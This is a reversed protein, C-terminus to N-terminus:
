RRGKGRKADLLTVEYRSLTDDEGEDTFIDVEGSSGLLDDTGGTIAVTIFPGGEDAEAEAETFTTVGSWSLEGQGTLALVGSCMLSLTFPSLEQEPDPEGEPFEGAAETVTCTIHNRGVEESRDEDAYVTDTVIFRDGVDPAFEEADGEVVEGERTIATSVDESAYLTLDTGGGGRKGKEDDDPGAAAPTLVALTLLAALLAVISKRMHRRRRGLM